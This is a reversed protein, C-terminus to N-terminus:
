IEKQSGQKVTVYPDIKSTSGRILCDNFEEISTIKMKNVKNEKKGENGIL